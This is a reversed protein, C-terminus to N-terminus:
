RRDECGDSEPSVRGLCGQLLPFWLTGTFGFSHFFPLVGIFCDSSEMPFIQDISDVNALVNAHSLVVGKPVGTSGSSFIITATSASTAGGGYRRRLLATPILRAKLLAVIQRARASAAACIRWSCWARCRTSAPRRFSGSRRSSRAHDQGARRAGRMAEAGITFNLNVPVRGAMLVAINALAGGVSAPLLVGVNTQGPTRARIVDALLLSGTLARGFKLSQGTSDAMALGRWRRKAVRMFETHLLDSSGRRHAMAESGLEM